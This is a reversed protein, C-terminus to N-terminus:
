PAGEVGSRRTTGGRATGGFSYRGSRPHEDRCVFCELQFRGDVYVGVLDSTFHEQTCIACTRPVLVACHYSHRYVGDRQVGCPDGPRSYPCREAPTALALCALAVCEPCDVGQLMEPRLPSLVDDLDLVHCGVSAYGIHHMLM